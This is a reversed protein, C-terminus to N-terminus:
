LGGVLGEMRGDLDEEREDGGGAEGDEEGADYDEFFQVGAVGRREGAFDEGAEAVLLDDFADGDLDDAERAHAAQDGVVEEDDPQEREAAGCGCERGQQSQDLVELAVPHQAPQPLEGHEDVQDQRDHVADEDQLGVHLAERGRQRHVADPLLVLLALVGHAVLREGDDRGNGDDGGRADDEHEPGPVQM